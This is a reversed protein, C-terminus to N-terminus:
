NRKRSKGVKYITEAEQDDIDRLFLGFEDYTADNWRGSQSPGLQGLAIELETKGWLTTATANSGAVEGNIYVTMGTGDNRCIINTWEGPKFPNSSTPNINTGGSSGAPNRHLYRIDMDGNPVEILIGHGNTGHEHIGVIDKSSATSRKNIWAMVAYPQDFTNIGIEEQVISNGAGDLEIAGKGKWRGEASSTFSWLPDASGGEKHLEANFDEPEISDKVAFNVNGAARNWLELNGSSNTESGTQEEFNYYVQLGQDIRMNHSYGKWKIFRARDRAGALSPLLISILLAIISIVVLLEIITFGKHKRM